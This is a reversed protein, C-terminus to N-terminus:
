RIVLACQKVDSDDYQFSRVLLLDLQNTIVQQNIRKSINAAKNTTEVSVMYTTPGLNSCAALGGEWTYSPKLLMLCTKFAPIYTFGPRCLGTKRFSTCNPNAVSADSWVEFIECRGDAPYYNGALCNVLGYTLCVLCCDTKSTANFSINNGVACPFTSNTTNDTFIFNRPCFSEEATATQCVLFLIVALLFSSSSASPNLICSKKSKKLM